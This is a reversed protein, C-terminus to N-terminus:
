MAQVVIVFLAMLSVMVTSCKLTSKLNTKFEGNNENFLTMIFAVMIDLILVALLILAIQLFFM